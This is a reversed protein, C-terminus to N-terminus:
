EWTRSRNVSMVWKGEDVRRLEADDSFVQRIQLSSDRIAATLPSACLSFFVWKGKPQQSQDVGVTGV